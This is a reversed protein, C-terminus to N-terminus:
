LNSDRGEEFATTVGNILPPPPHVARVGHALIPVEAMTPHPPDHHHHETPLHLHHEMPLLLHHHDMVEMHVQQRVVVEQLQVMLVMHLLPPLSRLLVVAAVAAGMIPDMHRIEVVKMPLQLQVIGLITLRNNRELGDALVKTPMMIIAQKQHLILHRHFVMPMMDLIAAERIEGENFADETM